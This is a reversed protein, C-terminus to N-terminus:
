LCMRAFDAAVAPASEALAASGGFTFYSGVVLGGGALASVKIFGRRDM